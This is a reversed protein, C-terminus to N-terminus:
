GRWSEPTGWWTKPPDPRLMAGESYRIIGFAQFDSYLAENAALWKGPLQWRSFEAARNCGKWFRWSLQSRLVNQECAEDGALEIAKEWLKDAYRVQNPKLDLLAKDTPAPGISLKRHAGFLDPVGTSRSILDIFERMYQWGGGYYAKLFGDMEAYFDIDPNFLLRALLYGRLQSFESNCEASQYNGEEYVGKVNNEVFFRMNQQLVQFNPYVCNYCGYNTTYDWIYLRGCIESWTRIDDAFSTNDPCDPDDLPHAFCCEISCLRVIVNPLPKVYKPPTRTYQYAFTDILADPYDEAIDEAIANVFRIMTGAHSGEEEDVRKCEACQCYDQNDDQTVSIIPQGNGNELLDRVERIMEELVEPNTLCLQKPVRSKSSERWAYWAPHAEFFEDPRLLSNIITHCMGGNYGFDGGVEPVLSRYVNGNLGNAVSYVPDSRSLWDMERYELPPIYQEDKVEAIEAPGPPIVQLDATYWRCDFYEELFHYVGYLVGRQGGQICIFDEGSFIKYGDAGGSYVGSLNNVLIIQRIEARLEAHQAAAATYDLGTIQSLTDALINAATIVTEPAREEYVIRYDAISHKEVAAPPTEPVPAFEELPINAPVAWLAGAAVGACLLAIVAIALARRLKRSLSLLPKILLLATLLALLPLVAQMAARAGGSANHRVNNIYYALGQEVAIFAALWGLIRLCKGSTKAPGPWVVSAVLALFVLPSIVSTLIYANMNWHVYITYHWALVGALVAALLFPLFKPPQRKM